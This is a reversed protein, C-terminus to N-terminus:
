FTCMESWFLKSCKISTVIYVSCLENIFTRLYPNNQNISAQIRPHKEVPYSTSDIIPFDEM